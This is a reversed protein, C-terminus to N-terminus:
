LFAQEVPTGVGAREARDHYYRGSISHSAPSKNGCVGDERGKCLREVDSSPFKPMHKWGRAPRLNASRGMAHLLLLHRWVIHSKCIFALDMAPRYQQPATDSRRQMHDEDHRSLERAAMTLQLIGHLENQTHPAPQHSSFQPAYCLIEFPSAEMDRLPLRSCNYAEWSTFTNCV